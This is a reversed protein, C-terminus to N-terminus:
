STTSNEQQKGGLKKGSPHLGSKAVSSQLEWQRARQVSMARRSHWFSSEIGEIGEKEKRCPLLAGDDGSGEAM